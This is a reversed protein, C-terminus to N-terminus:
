AWADFQGAFSALRDFMGTLMLLGIGIVLIASVREIVPLWRNIRQRHQMFREIFLTSLLFPVALGLSYVGLLTM